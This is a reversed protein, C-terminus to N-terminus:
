NFGENERRRLQEGRKLLTVCFGTKDLVFVGAAHLTILDSKDLTKSAFRSYLKCFANKGIWGGALKTKEQGSFQKQINYSGVNAYIFTFCNRLVPRMEKLYFLIALM